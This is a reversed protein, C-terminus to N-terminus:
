ISVFDDIEALATASSLSASGNEASQKRVPDAPGRRSYQFPNRGFLLRVIMPGLVPVRATCSPGAFAVLIVFPCVVGNVIVDGWKGGFPVGPIWKPAVLLLFAQSRQAFAMRDRPMLQFGIGAVLAEAAAVPPIWAFGPETRWLAKM